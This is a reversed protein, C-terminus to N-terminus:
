VVLVGGIGNPADDDKIPSDGDTWDIDERRGNHAIPILQDEHWTSGRGEM